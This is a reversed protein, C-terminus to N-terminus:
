SYNCTFKNYTLNDTVKCSGYEISSHDKVRHKPDSLTSPVQTQFFLCYETEQRFCFFWKRSLILNSGVFHSQLTRCLANATVLLSGIYLSCFVHFSIAESFWKKNLSSLFNRMARFEQENPGKQSSMRLAMLIHESSGSYAHM